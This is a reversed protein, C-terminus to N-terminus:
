SVKYEKRIAFEAQKGKNWQQVPRLYGVIRSYVECNKGCEPCTEHEGSVYGHQPCVSFTPTISIYPLHFQTVVKKVLRKVAEGDPLREGLFIHLVTGGTYKTQLDDQLQLVKFLDESYDVPLMSSNTYFPDMGDTQVEKENAVKIDPYKKKDIKALRYSTGEAPTAELNFISGTEEQYKLLRDRMFDLVELGFDRGKEQALTERMFNVVGENLGNLGITSFHNHWYDGFREKVERLYFASYPYLNRDTFREIIKRKIDLSDKALDMLQGTRKMFDEKDKSLYGIRAMNLTVVGISGTLPNSGFLGGGRKRL